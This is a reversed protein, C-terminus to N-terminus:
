CVSSFLTFIDLSKEALFKLNANKSKNLSSEEDRKSRAVSTEALGFFAFYPMMLIRVLGPPSNSVISPLGLTFRQGFIPRDIELRADM